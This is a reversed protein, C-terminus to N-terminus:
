KRGPLVRKDTRNGVYVELGYEDPLDEGKQLVAFRLMSGDGHLQRAVVQRLPLLSSVPWRM